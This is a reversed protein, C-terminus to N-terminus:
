PPPMAVVEVGGMGAGAGAVFPRPDAVCVRPSAVAAAGHPRTHRKPFRPLQHAYVHDPCQDRAAQHAADRYHPSGNDKPLEGGFALLYIHLEELDDMHMEGGEMWALAQMWAPVVQNPSRWASVNVYVQATAVRMAFILLLETDATMVEQECVYDRFEISATADHTHKM